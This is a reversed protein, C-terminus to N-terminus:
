EILKDGFKTRFPARLSHSLATNKTIVLNEKIELSNKLFLVRALLSFISELMISLLMFM